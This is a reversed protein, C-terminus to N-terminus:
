LSLEKCKGSGEERKGKEEKSQSRRGAGRTPSPPPHPFAYLERGVGFAASTYKQPTSFRDQNTQRPKRDQNETTM